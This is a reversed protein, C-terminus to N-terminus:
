TPRLDSRRLDSTSASDRYFVCCLWSVLDPYVNAAYGSLGSAGLRLSPTLSGIAANFLKLRGGEMARVRAGIVELTHSTDKYFTFRGSRAM